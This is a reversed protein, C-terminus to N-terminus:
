STHNDATLGYVCKVSYTQTVGYVCKIVTKNYLIFLTPHTLACMCQYAHLVYLVDLTLKGTGPNFRLM